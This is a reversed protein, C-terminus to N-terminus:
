PQNVTKSQSRKSRNRRNHRIANRDTRSGIWCRLALPRGSFMGAASGLSSMHDSQPSIGNASVTTSSHPAALTLSHVRRSLM